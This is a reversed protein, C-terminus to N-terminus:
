RLDNDVEKKFARSIKVKSTNEQTAEIEGPNIVGYGLRKRPSWPHGMGYGSFGRANLNKSYIELENIIKLFIGHNIKSSM